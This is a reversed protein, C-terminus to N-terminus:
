ESLERKATPFYGGEGTTFEILMGSIFDPFAVKELTETFNSVEFEKVGSVILARRQEFGAWYKYVFWAAECQANKVILLTSAAPISLNPQQNIWRYATIILQDKETASLSAWASAGWKEELYADAEARTIWSNSGVTVVIAM